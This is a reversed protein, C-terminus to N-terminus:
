FEVEAIQEFNFWLNEDESLELAEEDIEGAREGRECLSRYVCLQCTREDTTKLFRAEAEGPADALQKIGNVLDLLYAGDQQYQALNYAFREAPLDPETFWYVMEIQEPQVARGHNIESGAQVLLYPYVRTQLRNQLTTAKPRRLATKWDYITIKGEPSFVILDYVATLRFDGINASLHTEVRSEGNLNPLISTRFNQWWRLLAGDDEAAAMRELREPPLGILAQQALRHFRLGRQALREAERAPESPVAPWALRRLYRLYFRYSCDVFDQLSSQSFEFRDLPNM